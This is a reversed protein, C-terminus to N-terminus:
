GCYRINAWDILLEPMQHAMFILALLLVAVAAGAGALFWRWRPTM